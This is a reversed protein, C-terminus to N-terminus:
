SGDYLNALKNQFFQYVQYDRIVRSLRNVKMNPNRATVRVTTSEINKEESALIQEITKVGDIFESWTTTETGM